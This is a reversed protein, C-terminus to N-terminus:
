ESSYIDTMYVKLINETVKKKDLKLQVKVRTKDSDKERFINTKESYESKDYPDVDTSWNRIVMKEDIVTEINQEIPVVDFFTSRIISPSKFLIKYENPLGEDSYIEFVGYTAFEEDTPMTTKFSDWRANTSDYKYFETMDNNCCIMYSKLSLVTIKALSIRRQLINAGGSILETDTLFDKPDNLLYGSPKNSSETLVYGSGGCGGFKNDNGDNAYTGSGGYWGGGGAGGFGNSSRFNGPGGYGFGGGVGSGQPSSTQTGPGPTNGRYNSGSAKDGGVEGGGIGGYAGNAGESGGGGAVIIRAYLSDSDIRIDTGGGGATNGLTNSGPQGGGNFSCTPNYKSQWYEDIFNAFLGSGGVTVYTDRLAYVRMIGSSYGGWGYQNLDTRDFSSEIFRFGGSAGYCEFKYTGPILSIHQTQGVCPFIIEDGDDLDTTEKYIIIKPSESMGVGLFTNTFYLDSSPTYRDPFPKYSNATLVYGSGGGGNSDGNYGSLRTAYGGYWGGGGGGCGNGVGHHLSRDPADQGSGLSYGNEQTPYLYKIINDYLAAGGVEGGGYGIPNVAGYGDWDQGGGGGAVIIRSCLSENYHNVTSIYTKSSKVNGGIMTPNTIFEGTIIDCLGIANDSKRKAPVFYRICIKPYDEVDPKYIKLSYVRAHSPTNNPNGEFNADFLFLPYNTYLSGYLSISNILTDGVYWEIKDIGAEIRIRSDYLMEPGKTIPILIEVDQDDVRITKRKVGSGSVYRTIILDEIPPGEYLVYAGYGRGMIWENPDWTYLKYTILDYYYNNRDGNGIPNTFQPDKYFMNDEPKFYGEFFEDTGDEDKDRNIFKSFFLRSYYYKEADEYAGFLIEDKIIDGSYVVCDLTLSSNYGFVCGTDLYSGNNGTNEIYELEDYEDPIYTRTEIPVDENNISCRIDTAGGGGAGTKIYDNGSPIGGNGGGNWGGHCIPSDPVDSGDEGVGGVAAYLTKPSSLNLIGYTTGGYFPESNVNTMGGPAGDCQILYEGPQLTFEEYEGKYVFEKYTEWIKNNYCLLSKNM